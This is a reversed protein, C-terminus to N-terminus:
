RTIEQHKAPTSTDRPPPPPPPVLARRLEAYARSLRKTITGVPVGLREAAQACSLGAFFRLVVIERLAEPLEDVAKLLREDHAKGNAGGASPHGNLVQLPAEPPAHHAKGNDRARELLVVRAIGKVWSGFSEAEQLGNLGLWARTFAETAVEDVAGAGGGLGAQSAVFARVDRQHRQVLTAFAEPNGTRSLAILRADDM